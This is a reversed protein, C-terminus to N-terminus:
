SICGGGSGRRPTPSHTKKTLVFRAPCPLRTQISFAKSTCSFAFIRRKVNDFISSQEHGLKLCRFRFAPSITLAASLLFVATQRRDYQNERQKPLLCLDRCAVKCPIRGSTAGSEIHASYVSRTMQHVGHGIPQMEQKSGICHAQVKPKVQM